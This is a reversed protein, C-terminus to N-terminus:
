SYFSNIRDRLENLRQNYKIIYEHLSISKDRFDREVVNDSDKVEEFDLRLFFDTLPVVKGYRELYLMCGSLVDDIVEVVLSGCYYKKGVNEKKLFDWIKM